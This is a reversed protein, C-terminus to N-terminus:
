TAASPVAPPIAQPAAAAARLLNDHLHIHVGPAAQGILHHMAAAVTSAAIARYRAAEGKLWPNYFRAAKQALWEMPRLDERVGLLQAPRLLDVREFECRALDRETEGKVRLYFVPSKPEAGVSSVLLAQAADFARAIRAYRLVLGHDIARFNTESGAKRITSGLCCAYADVHDIGVERLRNILAEDSLSTVDLVPNILNAHEFDIARRTPAVVRFKGEDLLLRALLEVGILGTGGTLLVTQM